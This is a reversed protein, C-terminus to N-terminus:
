RAVGHRAPRGNTGPPRPPAPFYMVRDSRLRRALEEGAEDQVADEPWAM